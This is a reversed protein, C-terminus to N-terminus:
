NAFALRQNRRRDQARHLRLPRAMKLRVVIDQPDLNLVKGLMAATTEQDHVESPVAFVSDVDISMALPHGYRDYINGRRPEVPITRNQQRQALQM